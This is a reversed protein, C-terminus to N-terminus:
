SSELFRASTVSSIDLLQGGVGCKGLVGDLDAILQYGPGVRDGM